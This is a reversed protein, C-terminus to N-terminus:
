THTQSIYKLNREAREYASQPNKAQQLYSALIAIQVNCATLLQVHLSDFNVVFTNQRVLKLCCNLNLYCHNCVGQRKM